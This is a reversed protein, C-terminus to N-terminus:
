QCPRGARRVPNGRVRPSLGDSLPEVRAQEATGGCVRPYVEVMSAYDTPMAPEGACAPISRQSIPAMKATKPNGRVRPSLGGFVLCAPKAAPTGGCVRPYVKIQISADPAFEPEGACAPISGNAFVHASCVSPNGRVRPSLGQIRGPSRIRRPTGGCVRPYVTDLTRAIWAGPPEGACAPISRAPMSPRRTRLRNGRVRPSLGSFSNNGAAVILTGGCM